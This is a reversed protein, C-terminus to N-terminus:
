FMLNWPRTKFLYVLYIINMMIHHTYGDSDWMDKVVEFGDWWFYDQSNWEFSGSAECPGDDVLSNIFFVCIKYVCTNIFFCTQKNHWVNELSRENFLYFNL